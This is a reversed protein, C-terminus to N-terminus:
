QVKIAVQNSCEQAKRSAPPPCARELTMNIEAKQSSCEQAKRSAPPPYARELTM